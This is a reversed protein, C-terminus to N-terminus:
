YGVASNCQLGYPALLLAVGPECVAEGCLVPMSCSLLNPDYTSRAIEAISETKGANRRMSFVLFFLYM